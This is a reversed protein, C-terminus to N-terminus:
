FFKHTIRIDDAILAIFESNTPKGKGADITYRFLKDIEVMNGRRWTIEIAYRMSREVIEPKTRFRKAITPYLIKTVSHIIDPEKVVMIIAERLYDYGKITKPVGIACIQDTVVKKLSYKKGM